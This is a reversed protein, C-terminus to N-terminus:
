VTPYTRFGSHGPIEATTQPTVRDVRSSPPGEWLADLLDNVVAKPGHILAEVSGDARNRVWGDLGLRTAQEQTWARFWVGQVRGEVIVRVTKAPEDFM